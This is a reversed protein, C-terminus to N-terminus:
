DLPMPERVLRKLTAEMIRSTQASVSFVLAERYVRQANHRLSNAAGSNAVVGAQACRFMLDILWARIKLREDSTEESVDAKASQLAARVEDLERSLEILTERLFTQGKRDVAQRLVELGASACGIAFSGQLAINIRDNNAIWGAEKTMVLKEKPVFFNDFDVTVTLAAEMAALKMPASIAIGPQTSLPVVAFLAKGDPLSAGVLFENYFFWGTVWPVHGNLVAGDDTLTARMIPDGHRRLQSFGIGVTREGNHMKPLYEAKLDENTGGAILSSASQHQTQLFAFTGSARAAEEQFHRFEEETIEPGGYKTPRKLALLGQEGMKRLVERLVESDQDIENARPAVETRLFEVAKQLTTQHATEM